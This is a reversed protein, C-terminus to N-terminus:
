AFRYQRQAAAGIVRRTIRDEMAEMARAINHEVGPAAGRADINVITKSGGTGSPSVMGSVGPSFWEPGREGVVYSQGPVVPGGNARFGGFLNKIVGPLGSTGSQGGSSGKGGFVGTLWDELPKTLTIRLIIRGIDELLSGLINKIGKFHVIADELDTAIVHAFDKSKKQAANMADAAAEAARGFTEESIAGANLLETLDAITDSYVESVTRADLTVQRGKEMVDNRDNIADIQKQMEQTLEKHKALPLANIQEAISKLTPPVVDFMSAAKFAQEGSFKFANGLDTLADGSSKAKTSTEEMLPVLQGFFKVLKLPPEIGDLRNLMEDLGKTVASSLRSWEGADINDTLYQLEIIVQNVGAAAILAAKALFRMVDGIAEGIQRFAAASNTAGTFAGTIDRLAPLLGATIQIQAGTVAEQMRKIQDNFEEAARFTKEDLVLGLQLAEKKLAEIGDKGQNLFPILSAGAKGFVQIALATKLAGDKMGAFKGAIDSLVEDSERLHGSATKVSVGLQEFAGKSSGGQAADVMSKALKGMGKALQEIDVDALRAAYSLASFSEVSTGSSQALKGMKDIAESQHHVMAALATGAAVASAAAVKGIVGLSREIDKGTEFSLKAAKHMADSFSATQAKLNVVLSAIAM